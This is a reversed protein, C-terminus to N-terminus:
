VWLNEGNAWKHGNWGTRGLKCGVWNWAYYVSVHCVAVCRRHLPHRPFRQQRGAYKSTLHGTHQACEGHLM